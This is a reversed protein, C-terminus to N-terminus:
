KNKANSNRLANLYAHEHKQFSRAAEADGQAAKKKLNECYIIFPSKGDNWFEDIKRKEEAVREELERQERERELQKEVAKQQKASKPRATIEESEIWKRVLWITGQRKLLGARQLVSCAHRVASITLGSLRALQYISVDLVDRDQDHYGCKMCMVYYLWCANRCRMVSPMDTVDIITTYRM